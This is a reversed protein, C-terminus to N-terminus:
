SFVYGRFERKVNQFSFTRDIILYLFLIFTSNLNKDCPFISLYLSLPLASPHLPLPLTRGILRTGIQRGIWPTYEMMFTVALLPQDAIWLEDVKHKMARSVMDTCRETSMRVESSEKVNMKGTTHELIESVVPGPCILSM